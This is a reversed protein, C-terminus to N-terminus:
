TLGLLHALDRLDSVRFRPRLERHSQEDPQYYCFDIGANLAGHYDHEVSDGVYLAEWASVELKSLALDFVERAPKAYGAEDSIVVCHLHRGLGTAQLRGRQAGSEGNTVLGLKFHPSLRELIELASPNLFASRSFSEWYADAIAPAAREDEGLAILTDRMIREIVEGRSWSEGARRSWYSASIPAYAERLRAWSAEEDVDYGVGRYAAKLAYVECADFDILTGDLDFLIAKYM